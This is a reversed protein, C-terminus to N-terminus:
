ISDRKGLNCRRCLLQLNEVTNAGGKSHPIVHDFELYDRAGCQVCRGGDRQWVATKTEQSIHRSRDEFGVDVQRHYVNLARRLHANTTEPDDLTFMRTVASTKGIIEITENSLKIAVLSELGLEIPSRDSVFVLRMSTVFLEGDIAHGDKDMVHAHTRHWLLESNRLILPNSYSIPRARGSEIAALEDAREKALQGREHAERELAEERKAKNRRRAALCLKTLKWSLGVAVVSTVIWVMGAWLTSRHVAVAIFLGLSLLIGGAYVFVRLTEPLRTVFGAIRLISSTLWHLRPSHDAM